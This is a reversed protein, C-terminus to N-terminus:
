EYPLVGGLHVQTPDEQERTRLTPGFGTDLSVQYSPMLSNGVVARDDRVMRSSVLGRTETDFVLAKM